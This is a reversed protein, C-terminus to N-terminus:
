MTQLINFSHYMSFFSLQKDTYGTSTLELSKVSSWSNKCPCIAKWITRTCCLRRRALLCRRGAGAINLFNASALFVVQQYCFELTVKYCRINISVVVSEFRNVVTKEVDTQLLAFFSHGFTFRKKKESIRFRSVKSKTLQHNLEGIM